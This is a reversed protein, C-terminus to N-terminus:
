LFINLKGQIWTEEVYLLFREMEEALGNRLAHQRIARMGAPIADHPLLPLSMTMKVIKHAVPNENLLATMGLLRARKRMANASHFWCGVLHANPFVTRVAVQLGREFDTIVVTPNFQPAVDRLFRFLAIYSSSSKSEMLVYFVPFAQSFHMTMVTLLQRSPPVNPRVKFTGDIHVEHAEEMLQIFHHSGFIVSSSGENSVHGLYFPHDDLTRVFRRNNPQGLMVALDELSQPIIDMRQRKARYMASRLQEYGIRSSVEVPERCYFYM